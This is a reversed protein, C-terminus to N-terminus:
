DHGPEAIARCLEAYTHTIRPGPMFHQRGHLVHVRGRRVAKLPGVRAWAALADRAGRPRTGTDPDLEIIVDPDSRTIVELSLPAFADAPGAANAHGAMRLLDDYFSGAGAVYPPTPPDTLPALTILVRAPPTGRYQATIDALEGRLAAVLREATLPRGTLEGIRTIATFVDDLRADPVSEFRLNARAFRDSIARSQGAVLILDPRLGVLVEINVDTLAGLDRVAAVAPPYQCYRTRGVLRDGLGLAHCIETVSPAASVIRRPGADREGPEVDPAVVWDHPAAPATTTIATARDPPRPPEAARECGAVLLLLAAAYPLARV